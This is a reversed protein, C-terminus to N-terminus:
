KVMAQLAKEKADDAQKKERRQVEGGFAKFFRRRTAELSSEGGVPYDPNRSVFKTTQDTLNLIQTGTGGFTERIAEEVQIPSANLQRAIARATGGTAMDKRYRSGPSSPVIERQTFINKNMGIELTPKIFQPTLTSLVQGKSTGVPSVTGVLAEAIEGARVPDHGYAQEIFRRPVKALNNIEQSLPIKTVNWRGKEDQTPVEPMIIINNEKEFESVDKYAARRAPDKMNWATAMIVPLFVATGIKAGTALPRAQLSRFLTRTGQIQANLYLFTSNLVSGWEGRRAFNVTNERAARAGAIRAEEETLGDALAGQKGSIYHQIRTFEEGRALLDEATRLAQSPHRVMYAARTALTRTSRISAVTAPIQNRAMDFSTGLAGERIMEDFLEGHGVAQFLARSFTMPNALTAIGRSSNIFGTIQDKAINSALFAPNVGTIGVKAIRVPAALIRGVIGIRQVDLSKAAQAIEKTTRFTRKVGGDLYSFTHAGGTPIKDGLLEEIQFPNGPLNRYDALLQGAKNKEGQTFADTTKTMMSEIPSEIERESGKLKRVITQGSISAPGGGVGQAGTNEIESFVRQLPVYDPYTEKLSAALEPSILGSETVYDLLNQSYKVVHGAWPEYVEHMSDVFRADAALDRGTGPGHEMDGVIESLYRNAYAAAADGELGKEAAEKSALRGIGLEEVRRAQKAILYQDLTDLDPVERIVAEIGNDRAFQGAISPARYVRDISNTIDKSPALKIKERKTTSALLDEIPANSDVFKAKLDGLFSQGKALVGSPSGAKRAAERRAVQEKVYAASDFDAVGAGGKGEAVDVPVGQAATVEASRTAGAAESTGGAADGHTALAEAAGGVGRPAMPAAAPAAPAMSSVTRRMEEELALKTADDAAAAIKPEYFAIVKEAQSIRPRVKMGPIPTALMTGTRILPGITTESSDDLGLAKRATKRFDESAEGALKTVPMLPEDQSAHYASTLSGSRVLERAAALSRRPAVTAVDAVLGALGGLADAVGTVADVGASKLRTKFSQADPFFDTSVAQPGRGAKMDEGTLGLRDLTPTAVRKRAAALRSPAPQAADDDPTFGAVTPADDSSDPTFGVVPSM